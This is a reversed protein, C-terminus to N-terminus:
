DSFRDPRGRYERWVGRVGQRLTTLGNQLYKSTGVAVPSLLVVITLLITNGHGPFILSGLLGLGMIVPSFILMGLCGSTATPTLPEKLASDRRPDSQQVKSLRWYWVGDPAGDVLIRLSVGEKPKVLRPPFRVADGRPTDDLVPKDYDWPGTGRVDLIAIAKCSPTLEYLLSRSGEAFMEPLVEARGVNDVSVELIYPDALQTGSFSISLGAPPNDKMLSWSRIRTLMVPKKAQRFAPWALIAALAALIIGAVSYWEIGELPTSAPAVTQYM